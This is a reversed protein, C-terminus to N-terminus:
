DCSPGCSDEQDKEDLAVLSPDPKNNQAAVVELAKDLLAMIPEKVNHSTKASVQKFAL